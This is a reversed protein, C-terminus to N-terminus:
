NRSSLANNMTNRKSSNFLNSNIKKVKRTKKNNKFTSGKKNFNTHINLNQTARYFKRESTELSHEELIM